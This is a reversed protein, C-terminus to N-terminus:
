NGTGSCMSLLSRSKYRSQCAIMAESFGRPKLALLNNETLFDEVLAALKMLEVITPNDIHRDYVRCKLKWLVEREKAKPM